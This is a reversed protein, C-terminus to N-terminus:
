GERSSLYALFSLEGPPHGVSRLLTVADAQEQAAHMVVHVLFQWLPRRDGALASDRDEALQEDTLSGIWSRM